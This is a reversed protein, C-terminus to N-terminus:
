VVSSDDAADSTYLLCPQLPSASQESPLTVIVTALLQVAVKSRSGVGVCERVTAFAPVPVPVTVLAGANAGSPDSACDQEQQEAGHDPDSLQIFISYSNM